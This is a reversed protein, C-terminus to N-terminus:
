FPQGPVTAYGSLYVYLDAHGDVVREDQGNMSSSLNCNEQIPM